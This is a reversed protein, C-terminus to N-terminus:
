ENARETKNWAGYFEILNNLSEVTKQPPTVSNPLAVKLFELSYPNLKLTIVMVVQLINIDTIPKM